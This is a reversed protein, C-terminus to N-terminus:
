PTVPQKEADRQTRVWAHQPRTFFSAYVSLKRVAYAPVRSIARASLTTRGYRWWALFLSLAAALGAGCALAAPGWVGTLGGVTVLAALGVASGMVLASLPPVALELGLAVLDLRGSLLGRAVLRPASSFMVRLHGHEWRRRQSAAAADAAPFESRVVATPVLQPPTGAEALQMDEVIHGHGLNADRVVAWPFAMGTGTLLCPRGLRRLGLPRVLNKVLFAFAAVQRDPGAAPPPDMLYTAQAPRGTELAAAVLQEVAGDAVVCDADLVLVVDPPNRRLAAVGAALAYGKGRRVADTREVVEAGLSRAVAATGDTCNDAVVVVRDRLDLQAWAARLTRGIGSEENHAPVLVAVSPRPGPLVPGRSPRPRWSVALLCEAALVALPLSLAAAAAWAIPEVWNM